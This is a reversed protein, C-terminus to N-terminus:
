RDAADISCQNFEFTRKSLCHFPTPSLLLLFHLHSRKVRKFRVSEHRRWKSPSIFCSHFTWLSIFHKCCDLQQHHNRFTFHVNSLICLETSEVEVFATKGYHIEFKSQAQRNIKDLVKLLFRFVFNRFRSKQM